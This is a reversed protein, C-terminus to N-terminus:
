DMSWNDNICSQVDNVFVPDFDVVMIYGVTQQVIRTAFADACGVELVNQMGALLKSVFKYRSMMFLLHKLDQNWPINSILGLKSIGRKKAVDFAEQYQPEKTEKLTSM